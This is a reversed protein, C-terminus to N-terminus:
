DEILYDIKFKIITSATHTGGAAVEAQLWFYKVANDDSVSVQFGLAGFASIEYMTTLSQTTSALFINDNVSGSDTSSIPRMYGLKFDLESVTGVGFKGGLIKARDPLKALKIVDAATLTPSITVTGYVSNIGAHIGKIPAGKTALSCTTTSM